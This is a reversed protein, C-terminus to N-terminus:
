PVLQRSLPLPLPQHLRIHDAPEHEVPERAREDLGLREVVEHVM